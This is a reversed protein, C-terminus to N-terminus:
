VGVDGYLALFLNDGSLAKMEERVISAFEKAVDETECASSTVVKKILETM